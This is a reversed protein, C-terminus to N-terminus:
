FLLRVSVSGFRRPVQIIRDMGGITRLIGSLDKCLAIKM